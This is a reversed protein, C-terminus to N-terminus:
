SKNEKVMKLALTLFRIQKSYDFIWKNSKYFYNDKVIYSIRRFTEHIFSQLLFELDINVYNYKKYAKYFLGFNKKIEDINSTKSMVFRYGAFSLDEYKQGYRLSNFDLITEIKNKNFIINKPHLDHHILQEKTKIKQRTNDFLKNIIITNRIKKIDRIIKIDFKDLKQKKEILALIKEIDKETLVQYRNKGSKNELIKKNKLQKHLLAIHKGLEVIQKSTNQFFTGNYYMTLFINNKADVFKKNKNKIPKIVKLGQKNCNDLLKCIEEIRKPNSDDQFYRLVFEGKESNIKFNRSNKNNHSIQSITSIKGLDPFNKEIYRFIQENVLKM